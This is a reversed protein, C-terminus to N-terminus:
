EVQAKDDFVFVFLVTIGSLPANGEPFRNDNALKQRLLTTVLGCFTTTFQNFAFPAIFHESVSINFQPVGQKVIVLVLTSHPVLPYVTFNSKIFLELKGIDPRWSLGKDGLLATIVGGVTIRLGLTEGPPLACFIM